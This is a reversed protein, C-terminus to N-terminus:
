LGYIGRLALQIADINYEDQRQKRTLEYALVSFNRRILARRTSRMRAALWDHFLMHRASVIRTPNHALRLVKHKQM